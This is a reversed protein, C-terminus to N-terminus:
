QRYPHIPQPPLKLNEIGNRPKQYFRPPRRYPSEREYAPEELPPGPENLRPPPVGKHPVNPGRVLDIPNLEPAWRHTTRYTLAILCSGIFILMGLRFVTIGKDIREVDRLVRKKLEPSCPIFGPELEPLLEVNAIM